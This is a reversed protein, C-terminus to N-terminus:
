ISCTSIDQLLKEQQAALLTHKECASLWKLIATKETKTVTRSIDDISTDPIFVSIAPMDVKGTSSVKCVYTPNSSLRFTLHYVKRYNSREVKCELLGPIDTPIQCKDIEKKIKLYEHFKAAHRVLFAEFLETALNVENMSPALRSVRIGPISVFQEGCEGVIMLTKTSPEVEVHFNELGVNDLYTQCSNRLILSM